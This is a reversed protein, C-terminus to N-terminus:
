RYFTQVCINEERCVGEVTQGGDAKRIVEIKVSETATISPDWGKRTNTVVCRYQMKKEEATLASFTYEDDNASEINTWNKGNESKQWQCKMVGCDRSIATLGIVTKEGLKGEGSVIHPQAFVNVNKSAEKVAGAEDVFIGAVYNAGKHALNEGYIRTFRLQVHGSVNFSVYKGDKYNNVSVASLSELTNPDIVEILTQSDENNWDLLYATVMKTGQGVDLDVIQHLESTDAAAVRSGGSVLARTDETTDAWVKVDSGIRNLSIGNLAEDGGAISYAVSGYANKWNGATKTDMGVYKANGGAAQRRNLNANTDSGAPVITKASGGAATLTLTGDIVDVNAQKNTLGDPTLDYIDVAKLNEWGDPLKWTRTLGSSSYAMIEKDRSVVPMFIDDDIRYIKDNQTIYRSGHGIIFRNSRWGKILEEETTYRVISGEFNTYEMSILSPDTGFYIVGDYGADAFGQAKLYSYADQPMTWSLAKEITDVPVLMCANAPDAKRDGLAGQGIYHGTAKNQYITGKDTKILNWRYVDANEVKSFDDHSVKGFIIKSDKECVYFNNPDSSDEIPYDWDRQITVSNDAEIPRYAPADEESGAFVMSRVGDSFEAYQVKDDYSGRLKTNLFFYPYTKLAIQAIVTNPDQHMYNYELQVSYGFTKLENSPGGNNNGGACIYAPIKMPTASMSNSLLSQDWSLGLDVYGYQYDPPVEGILDVNYRNKIYSCVDNFAERQQVQTIHDYPSAQISVNADLYLVGTEVIAPLVEFLDDIQKRIGNPNQWARLQSILKAQGAPGNWANIYSGDEYRALLGHDKYYDFLDNDPYEPHAPAADVANAHVTCNTNFKKSEEMLYRLCTAGDWDPHETSKIKSNIPVWQPYSWDHGGEQYGVLICIKPGGRSINDVKEMFDLMEEVTRTGPHFMTPYQQDLGGYDVGLKYVMTQSLDHNHPYLPFVREIQSVDDMPLPNPVSKYQKEADAAQAPQGFAGFLLGLVMVLALVLSLVLSLVKKM